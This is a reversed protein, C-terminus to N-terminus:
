NRGDHDAAEAIERVVEPMVCGRTVLQAGARYMTTMLARGAADVHYVDTLDVRIHWGGPLAAAKWCADLERACDSTLCGEVKLQMEDGVIQSTIRFM